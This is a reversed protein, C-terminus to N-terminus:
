EWIWGAMNHKWNFTEQKHQGSKTTWKMVLHSFYRHGDHVRVRSLAITAAQLKFGLGTFLMHKGHGFASSRRWSTWRISRIGDECALDFLAKAPRVAPDKWNTPPCSGGFGYVVTQAARPAALASVVGTSLVPATMGIIAASIILSARVRM